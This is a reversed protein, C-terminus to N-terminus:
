LGARGQNSRDCVHKRRGRHYEPVTVILFGNDMTVVGNM